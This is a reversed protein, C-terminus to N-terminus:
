RHMVPRQAPQPGVPDQQRPGAPQVPDDGPDPLFGLLAQEVGKGALKVVFLGLAQVPQQFDGAPRPHRVQVPQTGPRGRHRALRHGGRQGPHGLDFGEPEGTRVDCRHRRPTGRFQGAPAHGALRGRQAAVWVVPPQGRHQGGHDVQVAPCNIVGQFQEVRQHTVVQHGAGAALGVVVRDVGV